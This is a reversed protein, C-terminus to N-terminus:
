ISGSGNMNQLWLVSVSEGMKDFSLSLSFFGYFLWVVNSISLFSIWSIHLGRITRVCFFVLLNISLYFLVCFYCYFYFWIWEGYITETNMNLKAIPNSSTIEEPRKHTNWWELFRMFSKWWNDFTEPLACAYIWNRHSACERTGICRASLDITSRSHNKINM